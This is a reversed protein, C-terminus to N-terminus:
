ASKSKYIGTNLHFLNKQHAYIKGKPTINSHETRAGESRQFGAYEEESTMGCSRWVM